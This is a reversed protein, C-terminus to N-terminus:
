CIYERNGWQPHLWLRAVESLEAMDKTYELHAQPLPPSPHAPSLKPPKLNLGVATTTTNITTKVGDRRINLAGKEEDLQHHPEGGAAKWHCSSACGDADHSGEWLCCSVDQQSPLIVELKM